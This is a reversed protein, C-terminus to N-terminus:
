AGEGEAPKGKGKAAAKEEAAEAELQGIQFDTEAIGGRICNLRELAAIRERELVSRREQLWLITKDRQDTM